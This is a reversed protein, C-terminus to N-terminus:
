RPSPFPRKLRLIAQYVYYGILLAMGGFFFAGALGRSHDNFSFEGIIWTINACIWFCVAANHVADSAVKRSHWAIWVAVAFTRLVMTM